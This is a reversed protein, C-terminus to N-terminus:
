GGITKQMCVSLDNGIYPDFNPIVSYGFKRYLSVAETQVTGTELILSAYGLEGAWTELELLITAGIGRGRFEDGVFMRKLEAANEDFRKFCGCGAPIEDLYAIVVTDLNQIINYQDFEEQTSGYIMKLAADLKRTLQIFDPSISTTRITKLM